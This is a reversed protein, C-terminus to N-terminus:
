HNWKITKMGSDNMIGLLVGITCLAKVITMIQENNVEIGLNALILIVSSAIGIVTKTNTLKQLIRNM